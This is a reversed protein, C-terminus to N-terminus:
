LRHRFIEHDAEERQKECSQALLSKMSITTGPPLNKDIAMPGFIM